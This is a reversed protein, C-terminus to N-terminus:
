VCRFDREFYPELIQKMETNKMEKSQMKEKNRQSSDQQTM